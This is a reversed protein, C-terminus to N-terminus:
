VKGRCLPCTDHRELWPQICDRHFCHPHTENCPLPVFMEGIKFEEQCIACEGINGEAEFEELPERRRRRAARPTHVQIYHLHRLTQIDIILGELFDRERIVRALDTRDDIAISIYDGFEATRWSSDMRAIIRDLTLANDDGMKLVVCELKYM